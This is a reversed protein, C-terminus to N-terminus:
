ALLGPEQGGEMGGGCNWQVHSRYRVDAGDRCVGCDRVNEVDDEDDDVVEVVSKKMKRWIWIRVWVEQCAAWREQGCGVWFSSASMENVDGLEAHGRLRMDEGPKLMWQGDVNWKGGTWIEKGALCGGGNGGDRVDVGGGLVQYEVVVEQGDWDWSEFQPFPLVRGVVVDNLRGSRSRRWMACTKHSM